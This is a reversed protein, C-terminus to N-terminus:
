GGLVARSGRRVQCYAWMHAYGSAGVLSNRAQQVQYRALPGDPRFFAGRSAPGTCSTPPSM